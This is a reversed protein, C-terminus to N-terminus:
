PTTPNTLPSTSPNPADDLRQTTTSAGMLYMAQVKEKNIIILDRQFPASSIGNIHITVNTLSFFPDSMALLNELSSGPLMYCQGTVVYVETLMCCPVPSKRTGSERYQGLGSTTHEPEPQPGLSVFHIHPRAVMLMTPIPTPNPQRGLPTISANQLMIYDRDERNVLDSARRFPGTASGQIALTATYIELNHINLNSTTLPSFNDM